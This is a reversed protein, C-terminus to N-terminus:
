GGVSQLSEMFARAQPNGQDAEDRVDEMTMNSMSVMPFITRTVRVSPREVPAIGALGSSVQFRRKRVKVKRPPSM